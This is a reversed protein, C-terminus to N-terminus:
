VATKGTKRRILGLLTDMERIRFFKMLFFYLSAGIPASIILTLLANLPCLTFIVRPLACAVAAAFLIKIATALLAKNNLKLYRGTAKMYIFFTVIASLSTALALGNVGWLRILLLNLVVNIVLAAISINMPTKTNGYGYFVNGLVTSGAAFFLAASYLAFVGATLSTSGADFAGRQFVVTVLEARFLVCALTVPFMMLAFLNLITVILKELEDKEGRAIMEIMQPYLATAVSSSLLGSFVNMLKHGYNLGSITGAPLTSAMAKDILANIQVVGASVLASPLRRLMLLFEQTRFRFDPKFRYGWDVFPLEVLLRFLGAAVLAVAMSEIGFRHYFFIAAIITPIHSAVERIQSGLFKEHCRLMSAYVASAIIFVYMPASIRVLRICLERTAGKFGPAVVTVVAPAFLMLLVVVLASIGAFFSLSKNTLIQATENEGRAIHSKYLPLFVNWIGVSMMPYIVSHVGSIMYYADSQYTTGLYAALVAETIFSAFKALIGVLVIITAGRFARHAISKNEM